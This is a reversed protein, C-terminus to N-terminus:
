EIVFPSIFREEKNIEGQLLVKGGHDESIYSTLREVHGQNIIKAYDGCTSLQKNDGYFEKIKKLLEKKFKDAISSHVYVHDVGVCTQGCNFFKGFLIRMVASEINASPDVIVPCKGGLEM